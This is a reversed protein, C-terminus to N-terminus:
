CGNASECVQSLQFRCKADNVGIPSSASSALVFDRTQTERRLRRFDSEGVVPFPPCADQQASAWPSRGGAQIGQAQDIMYGVREAVIEKTHLDIVKLSGGAVWHERDKRLQSTM